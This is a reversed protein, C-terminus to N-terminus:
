RADCYAVRKLYKIAALRVEEPITDQPIQSYAKIGAGSLGLVFVLALLTKRM